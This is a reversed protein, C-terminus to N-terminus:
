DTFAVVIEGLGCSLEIRKGSHNNSIEVQDALSSHSNDGILIQGLGCDLYYNYDEESASLTVEMSGLSCKGCLLISTLEAISVKGAGVEVIAKNVALKGLSTMEGAGIIIDMEDAKFDDALEVRGADLTIKVLNFEANEPYTVTIRGDHFKRDSELKLLDETETVKVEHEPDDEVEIVLKKGTGAQLCLSDASLVIEFNDPLDTEYTIKEGSSTHAAPEAKESLHKEESPDEELEKEMKNRLRETTVVYGKNETLLNQLNRLMDSDSVSAGMLTGALTLGGGAILLLVALILLIRKMYKM